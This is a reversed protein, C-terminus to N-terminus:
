CCGWAPSFRVMGVFFLLDASRSCEMCIESDGSRAGLRAMSRATPKPSLSKLFFMIPMAEVQLMTVGQLMCMSPERAVGLRADVAGAALADDEVGDGDGVADGHAGLAHLVGQDGALDDGVGDLGDDGALIEVAEDGDAAAVLVHGAAHHGDGAEVAGGDEDIAAADHGAASLPLGTSM